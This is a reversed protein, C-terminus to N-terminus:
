FDEVRVDEEDCYHLILGPMLRATGSRRLVRQMDKKNYWQNVVCCYDKPTSRKKDNMLYDNLQPNKCLFGHVLTWEAIEVFEHNINKEDKFFTRYNRKSFRGIWLEIDSHKRFDTNVPDNGAVRDMVNKQESKGIYYRKHKCNDPFGSCFYFNYEFDSISHKKEWNKCSEISNFPGIWQILFVNDVNKLKSATDVILKIARENFLGYTCYMESLRNQRSAWVSSKKLSKEFIQPNLRSEQIANKWTYLGTEKIWSLIDKKFREEAGSRVECRGATLFGEDISYKSARLDKCKKNLYGEERLLCVFDQYKRKSQPHSYDSEMYKKFFFELKM